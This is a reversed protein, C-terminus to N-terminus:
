DKANLAARARSKVHQQVDLGDAIEELAERLLKNEYYLFPQSLQLREIIQERNEITAKAATLERELSDNECRALHIQQQCDDRLTKCTTQADRAWREKEAKAATLESEALICQNRWTEYDRMGELADAAEECLDSFNAKNAVRLREVLGAIDPNDPCCGSDGCDDHM